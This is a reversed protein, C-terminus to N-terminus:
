VAAGFSQGRRQARGDTEGTATEGTAMEGASFPRGRSWNKFPAAMEKTTSPRAQQAEAAPAKTSGPLAPV